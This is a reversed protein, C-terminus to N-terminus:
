RRNLGRKNAPAQAKKRQKELEAAQKEYFDNLYERDLLPVFHLLQEMYVRERRNTMKAYAHMAEMTIPLPGNAGVGRRDSLMCFASWVWLMDPFLNPAPEQPKPPPKGEARERAERMERM